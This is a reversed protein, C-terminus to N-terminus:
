LIYEIKLTFMRGYQPLSDQTHEYGGPVRFERDFLNKVQLSFKLHNFLKRTSIHLNTLLM